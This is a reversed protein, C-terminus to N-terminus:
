RGWLASTVEALYVLMRYLSLDEALCLRSWNRTSACLVCILSNFPVVADTIFVRIRCSVCLVSRCGVGGGLEDAVVVDLQHLVQGESVFNVQGRKEALWRHGPHVQHLVYHRTSPLRMCGQVIDVSWVVGDSQQLTCRGALLRDVVVDALEGDHLAAVM